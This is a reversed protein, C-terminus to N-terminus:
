VVVATSGTYATRARSPVHAERWTRTKLNFIDLVEDKVPPSGGEELSSGEPFDLVPGLAYIDDPNQLVALQVPSTPTLMPQIISWAQAEFDFVEVSALEEGAEDTGGAVLLLKSAATAIMGHECRATGMPPLDQWTETAPDYCEVADTVAEETNGGSAYFRGQLVALGFSSRACRMSPMERWQGMVPDLVEVTALEPCEEEESLEEGQGGFVWVEEGLSASCHNSRARLLSPGEEWENRKPCYVFLSSKLSSDDGQGGSVYVKKNHATAAAFHRALRFSAEIAACWLCPSPMSPVDGQNLCQPSISGNIGSPMTCRPLSVAGLTLSEFM